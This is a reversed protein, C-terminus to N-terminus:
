KSTIGGDLSYDSHKFYHKLKAYQNHWMPQVQARTQGLTMLSLLWLFPSETLLVGANPLFTVTIIIIIQHM